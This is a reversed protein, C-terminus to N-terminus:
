EFMRPPDLKRQFLRGARVGVKKLIAILRVLWCVPRLNTGETVAVCPVSFTSGSIQNGKSRGSVVFMFYSDLGKDMWKAVSNATGAFEIRAMEERRLGTCFGGCLWTGMEAVSRHVLEDTTARWRAELIRDVKHIADISLAEDQRRIRGVRKLIGVM